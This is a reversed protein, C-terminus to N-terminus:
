STPRSCCASFAPRMATACPPSSSRRHSGRGFDGELFRHPRERRRRPGVAHRRHGALPVPRGQQQLQRRHRSLGRHRGQLLVVSRRTNDGNTDLFRRLVQGGLREEGGLRHHRRGDGCRRHVERSGQGGARRLRSGEAGAGTGTGGEGDAKAALAALPTFAVAVAASAVLVLLDVSCAHCGNRRSNVDSGAGSDAPRSRGAPSEIPM